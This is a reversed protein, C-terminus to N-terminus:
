SPPEEELEAGGAATALFSLSVPFDDTILKDSIM